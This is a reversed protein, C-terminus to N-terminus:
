TQFILGKDSFYWYHCNDHEKSKISKKVDIEESTAIRNYYILKYYKYSFKELYTNYYYHNEDKNLVSKM